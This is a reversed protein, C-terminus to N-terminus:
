HMNQNRDNNYKKQGVGEIRYIGTENKDPDQCCMRIVHEGIINMALIRDICQSVVKHPESWYAAALIRVNASDPDQCCIM